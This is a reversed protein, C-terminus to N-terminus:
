WRTNQEARFGPGAQPHFELDRHATRRVDPWLFCEPLELPDDPDRIAPPMMPATIAYHRLGPLLCHGNCPLAARKEVNLASVGSASLGALQPSSSRGHASPASHHGLAATPERASPGGPDTAGAPLRGDPPM